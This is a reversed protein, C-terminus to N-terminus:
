LLEKALARARLDTLSAVQDVVVRLRAADDVAQDHEERFVPDLLEPRADLVQVLGTLEARQREMLTAREATLMVFRAAVAKLLVCEALVDDPVVVDAAFRTLPGAGYRERTAREASGVFRGILRSAMDKLAASASRSGDYAAPSGARAAVQRASAAILETPLQPAYLERALMALDAVDDASELVRLDILGAAVGDEVDHVSYAVDDAWDMVQAELCRRGADPAGERVWDFLDRDDTYVGFKGTAYPGEGRAWPYKCAADLSARTLNLGVSRGQPTSRKAEIRTLLRFTQANGEFGGISASVADLAQEGNHGYPPHGLDHALCATDVVDANCGLAGGFERGIQAVELSHTLRNRIFDDTDPQLVQTKTALRRLGASHLVRARDRAFDDRDANKQAPDEGVFRERDRADYGTM